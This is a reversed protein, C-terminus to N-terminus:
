STIREYAERIACMRERLTESLEVPSAFGLRETIEQYAPYDPSPLAAVKGAILRLQHDVARLLEYGSSLVEHDRVTLSGSTELRALTARTSRDDGEDPVEDRLQLYRAAFYVDLM